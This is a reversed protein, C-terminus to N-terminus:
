KGKASSLLRFERQMIKQQMARFEKESIIGKELLVRNYYSMMGQQFAIEKGYSTSM